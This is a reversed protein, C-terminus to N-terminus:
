QASRIEGLAKLARRIHREIITTSVGQRTAIERQPMGQFRNLRFITRTPEPFAEIAQALLAVMDRGIIIREPSPRDDEVWLLEAIEGSIDRGTRAVDRLADRAANLTARNLYAGPNEIPPDDSVSQLRLWLEQVVDEEAARGNLLRKLRRLLVPRERILLRSLLQANTELVHEARACPVTRM